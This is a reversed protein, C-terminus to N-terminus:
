LFNQNIKEPEIPQFFDLLVLIAAFRSTIIDTLSFDRPMYNFAVKEKQSCYIMQADLSKALCPSYLSVIKIPYIKKKRGLPQNRLYLKCGCEKQSFKTTVVICM